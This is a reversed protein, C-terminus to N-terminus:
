RVARRYRGRPLCEDTETRLDRNLHSEQIVNYLTPMPSKASETVLLVAKRGISPGHFNIMKAPSAHLAGIWNRPSKCRRLAARM